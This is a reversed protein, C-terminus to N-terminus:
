VFNLSITTAPQVMHEKKRRFSEQVSISWRISSTRLSKARAMARVREWRFFRVALLFSGLLWAFLVLFDVRLGFQTPVGVTVYRLADGFYSLPFLRVVFRLSQPMMEPPFFIGSLFMMPFQVMQVLGSASEVTRAFSTLLYGLSVFTASGFLVWSLLPLLAGVYRVQFFAWGSALIVVTQLLAIGVRMTVESLLLVSRQVPLAALYRTVKKERLEVFDLSGFLGLQMLAMALVGPLFYEIQRFRPFALTRVTVDAPSLLGHRKLEEELLVGRLVGSLFQAKEAHQPPALFVISGEEFAVVVDRQGKRLAELEEEQSGRSLEVGKVNGFVSLVFSLRTDEVVGLRVDWSSGANGFILGFLFVFLVPFGFFWFLTMRDRFTNKSHAVLFFWFVKM